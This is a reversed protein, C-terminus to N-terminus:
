FDKLAGIVARNAERVRDADMKVVARDYTM